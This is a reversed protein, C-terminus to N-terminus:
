LNLYAYSSFALAVDLINKVDFPQYFARELWENMESKFSRFHKEFSQGSDQVDLENIANYYHHYLIALSTRSINKSNFVREDKLLRDICGLLTKFDNFKGPEAGFNNELTKIDVFGLGYLCESLDIERKLKQLLERQVAASTKQELQTQMFGIGYSKGTKADKASTGCDFNDIIFKQFQEPPQAFIKNLSNRYFSTDYNQRIGTNEATSVERIMQASRRIKEEPAYNGHIFYLYIMEAFNKYNIGQETPTAEYDSLGDRYADTLFRMLNNSYYDRFLNKEADEVTLNFAMAFMYLGRKTAGGTRFKGATLDDTVKLLGFKGDPKKQEKNAASLLEFVGDDLVKCIADATVKGSIKDKVYNRVAQHGGFGAERLFNGYKIFQKLIRLRLTDGSWGDVANSFRDVVRSIYEQPQPYKDFNVYFARILRTDPASADPLNSNEIIKEYYAAPQGKEYKIGFADLKRFLDAWLSPARSSGKFVRLEELQRMFDQRTLMPAEPNYLFQFEETLDSFVGDLRKTITGTEM